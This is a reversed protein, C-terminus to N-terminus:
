SGPRLGSVTSIEPSSTTRSEVASGRRNPRQGALEHVERVLSDAQCGGYPTCFCARLRNCSALGDSLWPSRAAHPKRGPVPLSVGPDPPLLFSEEASLGCARRASAAAPGPRGGSDPPQNDVM